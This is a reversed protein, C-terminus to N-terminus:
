VVLQALLFPMHHQTVEGGVWLDSLLPDRAVLERLYRVVQWVPRVETPM